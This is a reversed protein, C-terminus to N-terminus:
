GMGNTNLDAHQSFWLRWEKVKGDVLKYLNMVDMTVYTNDPTFFAHQKVRFAIHDHNVVIAKVVSQLERYKKHLNPLRSKLDHLSFKKPDPHTCLELKTSFYQDLMHENGAEFATVFSNLVFKNAEENTM